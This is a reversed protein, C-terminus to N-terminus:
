RRGARSSYAPNNPNMQNARNNAEARNLPVTAAVSMARSARYAAHQPNLQNARNDLAAQYAVHQPNLQNARNDLAAQYATHQSNLQNARAAQTPGSRREREWPGQRHQDRWALMKTENGPLGARKWVGDVFREVSGDPM